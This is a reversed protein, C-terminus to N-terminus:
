IPAAEAEARPAHAVIDTQEIGAGRPLTADISRYPVPLGIGTTVRRVGMGDWTAEDPLPVILRDAPLSTANPARCTLM